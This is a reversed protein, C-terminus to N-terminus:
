CVYLILSYEKPHFINFICFGILHDQMVGKHGMERERMGVSNLSNTYSQQEALLHAQLGSRATELTTIISNGHPRFAPRKQQLNCQGQQSVTIYCRM